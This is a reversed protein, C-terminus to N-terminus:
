LVSRNHIGARIFTSNENNITFCHAATLIWRPAVISGSCIFSPLKSTKEKRGSDNDLFLICDGYLAINWPWSFPRVERSQYFYDSDELHPEVPTRGCQTQALTFLIALLLLSPLATPMGLTRSAGRLGFHCTRVFSLLAAGERGFM